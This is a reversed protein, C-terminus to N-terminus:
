ILFKMMFELVVFHRNLFFFQSSKLLKLKILIKYLFFFYCFINLFQNYEFEVFKIITTFDSNQGYKLSFVHKDYCFLRHSNKGLQACSREVKQLKKGRDLFVRQQCLRFLKLQKNKYKLIIGGKSNKITRLVQASNGLFM